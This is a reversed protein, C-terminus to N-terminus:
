LRAGVGRLLVGSFASPVSSGKPWVQDLRWCGLLALSEVGSGDRRAVQELALLASGSPDSLAM